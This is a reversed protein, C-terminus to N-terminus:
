PTGSDIPLLELPPYVGPAISVTVRTPKAAGQRRLTRLHDRAAHISTFFPYGADTATLTSAQSDVHLTLRPVTPASSVLAAAGGLLLALM